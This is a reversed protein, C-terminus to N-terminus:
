AALRAAAASRARQPRRVRAPLDLSLLALFFAADGDEWRGIIARCPKASGKEGCIVLADRSGYTAQRQLKKMMRRLIARDYPLMLDGVSKGALKAKRLGLPAAQGQIGVIDLREGLFLVLDFAALMDRLAHTPGEPSIADESPAPLSVAAAANKSHKKDECLRLVKRGVAKFARMEEATLTPATKPGTRRQTTGTKRVTKRPAKAPTRSTSAVPPSQREEGEGLEAVILGDQGDALKLIGISCKLGPVGPIKVKTAGGEQRETFDAFRRIVSAPLSASFDELRLAFAARAAPNMWAVSKRTHNWIFAARPSFLLDSLPHAGAVTTPSKAL